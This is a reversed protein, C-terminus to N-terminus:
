SRRTENPPPLERQPPPRLRDFCCVGLWFAGESHFVIFRTNATWGNDSSNFRHQRSPIIAFSSIVFAARWANGPLRPSIRTSNKRAPRNTLHPIASLPDAGASTRGPRPNRIMSSSVVPRSPHSSRFNPGAPDLEITVKGYAWGIFSLERLLLGGSAEFLMPVRCRAVIDQGRDHAFRWPLSRHSLASRRSCCPPRPQGRPSSRHLHQGRKSELPGRIILAYRTELAFSARSRLEQYTAGM